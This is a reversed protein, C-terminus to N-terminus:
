DDMIELMATIPHRCLPCDKFKPILDSRLQVTQPEPAVSVYAIACSICVSSHRCPIFIMFSHAPSMCIVCEQLCGSTSTGGSLPVVVNPEVATGALEFGQPPPPLTQEFSQGGNLLTAEHPRDSLKFSRRLFNLIKEGPTHRDDHSSSAQQVGPDSRLTNAPSKLPTGSAISPPSKSPSTKFPESGDPGIHVKKAFIGSVKSMLTSAGDSLMSAPSKARDIGANISYWSSRGGGVFAVDDENGLPFYVDSLLLQQSYPEALYLKQKVVHVTFSCRSDADMDNSQQPDGSIRNVQRELICFNAQSEIKMSAPNPQESATDIVPTLVIALPWEYELSEQWRTLDSQGKTSDDGLGLFKKLGTVFGVSRFAKLDDDDKAGKRVSNPVGHIILENEIAQEVEFERQVLIKGVTSAKVEFSAAKRNFNAWEQPRYVDRELLGVYIDVIVSSNVLDSISSFAISYRTAGGTSSAQTLSVSSKDLNVHLSLPVVNVLSAYGQSPPNQDCSHPSVNESPNSVGVIPPAALLAQTLAASSLDMPDDPSKEPNLSRRFLPAMQLYIDNMFPDEKLHSMIRTMCPIETPIFYDFIKPGFFPLLSCDDGGNKDQLLVTESDPSAHLRTAAEPVQDKRRFLKRMFRGIFVPRANRPRTTTVNTSNEQFNHLAEVSTDSLHTSSFTPNFSTTTSLRSLDIVHTTDNIVQM